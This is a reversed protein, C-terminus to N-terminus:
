EGLGAAEVLDAWQKIDREVMAKFADGSEKGAVAGLQPLFDKFAQSQM